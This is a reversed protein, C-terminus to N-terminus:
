KGSKREIREAAEQDQREMSTESAEALVPAIAIRSLAQWNTDPQSVAASISKNKADRRL